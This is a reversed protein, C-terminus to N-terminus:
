KKKKEKILDNLYFCFDENSRVSLLKQEKSATTQYMLVMSNSWESLQSHMDEPFGLLKSIIKVPLKDAFSKIFDFQNDNIDKLLNQSTIEIDKKLLLINKKSFFNQFPSRLKRHIYGDNEFMSHEETLFFPKFDEEINEFSKNPRKRGFRKDNLIKKILNYNQTVPMKFEEWFFIKPLKFFKEYIKYPNNIFEEQSLNQSVIQFM